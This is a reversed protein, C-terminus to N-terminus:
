AWSMPAINGQDTHRQRGEPGATTEFHQDVAVSAKKHGSVLEKKHRQWEVGPSFVVNKLRVEETEPPFVLRRSNKAAGTGPTAIGFFIM